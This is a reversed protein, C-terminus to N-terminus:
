RADRVHYTWARTTKATVIIVFKCRFRSSLFAKMRSQNYKNKKKSAFIGITLFFQTIINALM